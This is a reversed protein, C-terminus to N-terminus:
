IREQFVSLFLTYAYMHTNDYSHLERKSGPFVEECCAGYSCFQGSIM